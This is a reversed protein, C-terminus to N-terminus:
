YLDYYYIRKINYGLDTLYQTLFQKVYLGRHDNTIGINM